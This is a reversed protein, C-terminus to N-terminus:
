RPLVVSTLGYEPVTLRLTEGDLAVTERDPVVRDPEELTNESAMSAGSLTTVAAQRRQSIGATDLRVDLDGVGSGRHVLMVALEEDDVTAVADLVPFEDVTEIDGVPTDVTVTECAVDVAVPTKGTLAAGMAHGYHCPDAWVRERRKQLGAGHNVTGTHTVLEVAGDQRICNHIISADWIAETISKKGPLASSPGDYRSGHWPPSLVFGADSEHSVTIQLESIALRPEEIGAERMREALATLRRDLAETAGMLTHYLEDLDVESDVRAGILPHTAISRLETSAEDILRENWEGDTGCAVLRIEPDADLMAKRFRKFRDVYGDPTTWNPQYRGYLENGVEWYEVDFPDPHGHKARLRGMPTSEDGNCYEVWQAAEAPTGTGTNVCIMPECGVADCLEIFEVTGFLNPEIGGWAPNNTTPRQLRPGVGNHWDYDSVFNGGPWRMLPLDAQQLLRVVDPDAHGVHDDPYLTLRDVVVNCAEVATLSLAVLDDAPPAVDAPISLTGDFTQWEDRVELRAAVLEAEITGNEDVRHLALRMDAATDARARITVSYEYMRTRQLPLYTWQVIGAPDNSTTRRVEIRQARTRHPGVDPSVEVADSMGRRQWWFALGDKVGATLGDATPYGKLEAHEEIMEQRRQPDMSGVYGGDETPAAARFRWRGFTPNYLLQAEMGHDVNWALHESFKGYLRPSIPSNARTEPDIEVTPVSGAHAEHRYLKSM